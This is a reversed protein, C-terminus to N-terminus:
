NFQLKMQNSIKHYNHKFLNNILKKIMHHYELMIYNM